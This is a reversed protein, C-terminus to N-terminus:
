AKGENMIKEFEELSMPKSLYFGQGETCGCKRLLTMQEMSEIGEAALNIQLKRAQEFMGRLSNPNAAANCRRLDLKLLDAKIDEIAQLAMYDGDFGDIAVRFGAQRLKEETEIAAEPCQLYANEAIEIELSRPPIRYKKLMETFFETIDMALIDTKTVNISLPVPRIGQDIWRRVAACVQEWIHKDLKTISGNKELVPIFEAPSVTGLKGHNWRVLAEAGVVKRSNLDFRPQLYFVFEGTRLGQLIQPMLTQEKGTAPAAAPNGGGDAASFPLAGGKSMKELLDTIQKIEKHERYRLQEDVTPIINQHFEETFLGMNRLVMNWAIRYMINFALSLILGAISTYFAVQIGGLLAQVSTLAASVTSFGINRIGMILGIFTGLLGLGTLSGPIQHIVNQWSRLALSEENIFEDIDSLVQGSERQAQVKARYDTFIEDMTRQHFFEDIQLMAAWTSQSPMSLAHDINEMGTEFGHYFQVAPLIGFLGGAVLIGEMLVIFVTSISDPAYAMLVIGTILILAMFTYILRRM